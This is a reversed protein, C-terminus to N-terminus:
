SSTENCLFYFLNFWHSVSNIFVVKFIEGQDGGEM